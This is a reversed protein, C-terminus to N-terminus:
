SLIATFVLLAHIREFSESASYTRGERRTYMVSMLTQLFLASCHLHEIRELLHQQTECTDDERISVHPVEEDNIRHSEVKDNEESEIRIRRIVFDDSM